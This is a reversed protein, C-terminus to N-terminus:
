PAPMVGLAVLLMPGGVLILGLVVPAGFVGLVAFRKGSRHRRSYSIALVGYCAATVLFFSVYAIGALDVQDPSGTLGSVMGVAEVVAGAAYVGLTAFAGWLLVSLAAPSPFRPPKVVSLLAVAAGLVKLGVVLWNMVTLGSAYEAFPGQAFRDTLVFVINVTAFGVCALAMLVGIATV